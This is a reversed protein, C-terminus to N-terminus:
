QPHEDGAAHEVAERLQAHRVDLRLRVQHDGRELCRSLMTVGRAVPHPERPRHVALLRRLPERALVQSRVHEDPDGRERRDLDRHVVEHALVGLALREGPDVDAGVRRHEPDVVRLELRDEFAGHALDGGQDRRRAHGVGVRALDQQLVRRPDVVEVEFRQLRVDVADAELEGVDAGVGLLQRARHRVRGLRRQHPTRQRSGGAYM